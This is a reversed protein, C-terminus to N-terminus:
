RSRQNSSASQLAERPEELAAFQSALMTAKMYHGPRAQMRSWILEYSGRLYVFRVTADVM